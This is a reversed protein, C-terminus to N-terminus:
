RRRRKLAALGLGLAAMSGPEPVVGSRPENVVATWVSEKIANALFPDTMGYLSADLNSPNAGYMTAYFTAAALFSGPAPDNGSVLHIGDTYIEGIQGYGPVQGARMRRDLEYMADGVPILKIKKNLGAIGTNADNPDNDGNLLDVAQRFYDRTENLGSGFNSSWSGGPPYSRDWLTQFNWGATISGDDQRAGRPWRSYIYVQTDANLGGSRMQTIYRKIATYDDPDDGANGLGPAQWPAETAPSGLQRDFPQLTVADWTYDPLAKQFARSEGGTAAQQNDALGNTPGYRWTWQLPAGPIMTRGWVHNTGPRAAETMQELKSYQLTDTVSNGVHYVRFTTQAAASTAVLIALLPFVRM